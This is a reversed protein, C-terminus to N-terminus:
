REISAPSLTRFLSKLWFGLKEFLGVEAADKQAVLEQKALLKKGEYVKIHGLVDGKNIPLKVEKRLDIETIIKSKKETVVGFDKSAILSMKEFSYPVDTKAKVQGKKVIQTYKLQSFGYKFLKKADDFSSQRVSSNLTATILRVPGKQAASVLCYGSAKTYGTKIGVARPYQWLLNNRNIIKRSRKGKIVTTKTNVITAFVENELAERGLLAMDYATSTNQDWLGHPSSFDSNKLGLAGARKNMLKAFGDVSGSVQKALAVAADNASRLMLAYLLDSVTMKEGKELYIESEGTSEVSADSTVVEEPSLEEIALLGTMIKTTSAIKRRVNPNKAWLVKGTQSDILVASSSDVALEGFSPLFLANLFVILILGIISIKKFM